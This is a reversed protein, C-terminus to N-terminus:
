AARKNELIKIIEAKNCKKPLSIEFTDALKRLEKVTYDALNIDHEPIPEPAPEPDTATSKAPIDTANFSGLWIKEIQYDGRVTYNKDRLEKLTSKREINILERSQFDEILKVFAPYIGLIHQPNDKRRIVFVPNDPKM